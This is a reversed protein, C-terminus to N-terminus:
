PLLGNNGFAMISLALLSQAAYYYTLTMAKFSKSTKPKFLTFTLLIDSAIFLTAGVAVLATVLDSFGNKYISSVAMTFMYIIIIFYILVPIKNEGLEIGSVSYSILCAGLILGYVILDYWLFGNFVLFVTGYVIQGVLFVSLGILFSKPNEPYVLFVDGVLGLILALIIFLGYKSSSGFLLFSCVGLAVFVLSSILKTIFYRKQDWNYESWIYFPLWCFMVLSLMIILWM